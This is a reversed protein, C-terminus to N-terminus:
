TAWDAQLFLFVIQPALSVPELEDAHNCSSLAGTVLLTTMALIIRVPNYMSNLSVDANLANIPAPHLHKGSIVANPVNKLGGQRFYQDIALNDGSLYEERFM